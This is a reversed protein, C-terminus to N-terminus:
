YLLFFQEIYVMHNLWGVCCECFTLNYLFCGGFNMRLLFFITKLMLFILSYYTKLLKVCFFARFIKLWSYNFFSCHKMRRRKLLKSLRFAHSSRM